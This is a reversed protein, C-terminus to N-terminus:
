VKSKLVPTLYEPIGKLDIAIRGFKYAIEYSKGAGVADYFGVAFKIAAEDGIAKKMGVVHDIHAHTVVIQKVELKHRDIVALVNEIDDGPDIVLAERTTDDAIVSCNCQLPGVQIIEHIM